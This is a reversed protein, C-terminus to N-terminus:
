EVIRHPNIFLPVDEGDIHRQREDRVLGMEIYGSFSVQFGPHSHREIDLNKVWMEMDMDVSVLWDFHKWHRIKLTVVEEVDFANKLNRGVKQEEPIFQSNIISM